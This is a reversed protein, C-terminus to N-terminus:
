NRPRRYMDNFNHPYIIRRLLPTAAAYLLYRCMKGNRGDVNILNCSVSFLLNFNTVNYNIM